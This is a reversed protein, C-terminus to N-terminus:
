KLFANGNSCWKIKFVNKKFKIFVKGQNPFPLFSEYTHVRYYVIELFGFNKQLIITFPFFHIIDLLPMYDTTLGNRNILHGMEIPDVYLMLGDALLNYKAFLTIGFFLHTCCKTKFLDVHQM